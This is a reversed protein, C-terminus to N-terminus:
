ASALKKKRAPHVMYAVGISVAYLALMPMAFLIMSLPDPLPCIIAAIIFIILIAYRANKVLFKADTIGFLALFFVVIPLEFSIGLGFIIASFFGTYDDITIIPHFHKGFEGILVKLASKLVYRYGFWAGALFLGVTTFMFPWVYKKENEYLGPSIFLWVQYLIYPAALIAGGYLSTKLYLNLGDTPHTFNLELHLENMPRQVIAFLQEHFYYAIAFGIVLAVASHILRSRLEALHEMLSMGPLEARDSVATKVNDIVDPM